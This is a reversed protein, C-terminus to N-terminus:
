VLNSQFQGLPEQTLSHDPQVDNILLKSSHVVSHNKLLLRKFSFTLLRVSLRLSPRRVFQSPLLESSGELICMGPLM